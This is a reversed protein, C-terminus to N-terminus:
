IKECPPLAPIDEILLVKGNYNPVLKLLDKGAILLKADADKMMFELREQPYSPDLPQYAAGSKLVGLSALVM